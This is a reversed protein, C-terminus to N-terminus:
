KLERVSEREIFRAKLVVQMKTINKRKNELRNILISAAILGIQRPDQDVCTIPPDFIENWPADDFGVISIDQPVRIRHQKVAKLVGPMMGYSGVIIATPRPSSYIISEFAEKGGEDTSRGDRIWEERIEVKDSYSLFVKLRKESTYIGRLPHIFGIKRHGKSILYEMLMRMGEENDSIVYDTDVNEVLRDFFVVPIGAAIISNYLDYNDKVNAPAALVGAIKHRMLIKLHEAEKEPDDETPCLFLRYGLCYLSKEMSELIEAFFNGKLEPVLVGITKTQGGRLARALPDPTYGLEQALRVIEERLRKSVGPKNNLARSVTSISVKLSNAIDKLTIKKNSM